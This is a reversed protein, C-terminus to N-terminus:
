SQSRLLVPLSSVMSSNGQEPAVWPLGPAAGRGPFAPSLNSLSARSDPFHWSLRPSAGVAALHLWTHGLCIGLTLGVPLSEPLVMQVSAGGTDFYYSQTFHRLAVFFLSM